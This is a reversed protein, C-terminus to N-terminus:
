ASMRARVVYLSIGISSVLLLGIAIYGIGQSEGTPALTASSGQVLTSYPSFESTSGYSYTGPTPTIEQAHAKQTLFLSVFLACILAAIIILSKIQSIHYYINM